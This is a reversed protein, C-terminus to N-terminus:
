LTVVSPSSRAPNVSSTPRMQGAPRVKGVGPRVSILLLEAFKVTLVATYCMFIAWVYLIAIATFLRTTLAM